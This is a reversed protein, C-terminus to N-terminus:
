RHRSLEEVDFLRSQLQQVREELATIRSVHKRRESLLLEVQDRLPGIAVDIADRVQRVDRPAPLCLAQGTIAGTSHNGGDDMDRHDRTRKGSITRALILPAPSAVASTDDPKFIRDHSLVLSDDSAAHDGDPSSVNTNGTLALGLPRDPSRQRVIEPLLDPRDRIFSPHGFTFSGPSLKHFRYKNLQRALSSLQSHKFYKPLILSSFQQTNEVVFALGNESWHVLPSEDSVLCYLKYIFPTLLSSYGAISSGPPPIADEKRKEPLRLPQQYPSCHRHRHPNCHSHQQEPWQLGPDIWANGHFPVSQTIRKRQRLEQQPSPLNRSSSALREQRALTESPVPKFFSPTSQPSHLSPEHRQSQGFDHHGEDNQQHQDYQQYPPFVLSQQQLFRASLSPLHLGGRQSPNGSM